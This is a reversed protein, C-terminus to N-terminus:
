NIYTISRTKLPAWRFRKYFGTIAAGVSLAFIWKM